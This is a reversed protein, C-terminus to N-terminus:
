FKITVTKEDMTYQFNETFSMRDLVRELSQRKFEGTLDWKEKPRNEVIVKVGYWRQLRYLVEDFTAHKFILIGDKWSVVEKLNFSRVTSRQDNVSYVLQEGPVLVDHSKLSQNEISVKGSVLSIKIQYHDGTYSNIDFSTGLVTTILGGSHVRFPRLTDEQVKFFAQGDLSIVREREAFTSPYTITSGANLWVTSGDPLKIMSRQGYPNTKVINSIVPPVPADETGKLYHNIVFAVSVILLLMGAMRYFTYSRRTSRLKRIPIPSKTESLIYNLSREKVEEGAKRTTFDMAVLLERAEMLVERKDPNLQLWRSWFMELEPDSNKVWRIFEEDTLFDEITQKSNM